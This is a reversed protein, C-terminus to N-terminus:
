DVVVVVAQPKKARFLNGAWGPLLGKTVLEGARAASKEDVWLARAACDQNCPMPTTSVEFAKWQRVISRAGPYAAKEEKTPAGRDGAMFGISLGLMGSEALIRTQKVHEGYEDPMFRALVRWGDPAKSRVVRTIKAVVFATGYRHDSYMSRYLSKPDTLMSWDGGGPLVVEEDEDLRGTTAIGDLEYAMGNSVKVEKVTADELTMGRVGILTPDVADGFCKAARELMSDHALALQNNFPITLKM